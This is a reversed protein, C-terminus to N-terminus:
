NIWKILENIWENMWENMWENTWGNMWENMWEDIWENMVKLPKGDAQSKLNKLFRSTKLDRM